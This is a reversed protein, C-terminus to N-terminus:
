EQGLLVSPAVAPCALGKGNGGGGGIGEGHLPATRWLAWKGALSLLLSIVSRLCAGNRVEMSGATETKKRGAERHKGDTAAPAWSAL